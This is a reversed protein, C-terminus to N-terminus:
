RGVAGRKFLLFKMPGQDTEITLPDLFVGSGHTAGRIAAWGIRHERQRFNRRTVFVLGDAECCLDGISNRLGNVGKGAACRARAAGDYVSAFAAATQADFTHWPGSVGADGVRGPGRILAAVALVQLRILRFIKPSIWLFGVLFVGVVGLTVLPHQLSLWIGAAETMKRPVSLGTLGSFHTNPLATGVVM